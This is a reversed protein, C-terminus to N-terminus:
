KQGQLTNNEELFEWLASMNMYEIIYDTGYEELFDEASSYGYESFNEKAFLKADRKTHQIDEQQIIYYYVVDERVTEEANKVCYEKFEADSSFGMYSLMNLYTVGYQQAGTEAEAVLADVYADVADKPLGSLEFNDVVKDWLEELQAEQASLLKDEELQDRFYQKMGAVTAFEAAKLGAVFEDTLEPYTTVRKVKIVIDLALTKGALSADYYDEPLEVNVIFSEGISKGYLSDDIGTLLTGSGLKYVYDKAVTNDYVQGDVSGSFDMVVTDGSAVTGETVEDTEAFDSLASYIANEVEADTVTTDGLAVVLGTYEGVKTIYDQPKYSLRGTSCGTLVTAILTGIAVLASFSKIRKVQLRQTRIRETRQM